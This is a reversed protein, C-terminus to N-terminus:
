LQPISKRSVPFGHSIDRSQTWCVRQGRNSIRDRILCFVEFFVPVGLTNLEAGVVRIRGDTAGPCSPDVVELTVTTPLLGVFTLLKWLPAAITFRWLEGMTWKPAPPFATMILSVILQLATSMM